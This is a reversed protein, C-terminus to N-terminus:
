KGLEGILNNLVEIVKADANVIGDALKQLEIGSAPSIERNLRAAERLFDPDKVTEDFAKRVADVRDAPVGPGFLLPHGIAAPASLLHLAAREQPNRALYTLMPPEQLDQPKSLGIQVLVNIKKEALWGPRERIAEWNASGRADVERRELALDIEAGGQYGAIVKFRTGVIRNLIAPYQASASTAGSAGITVDRKKADELSAIGSAAWAFLINTEQVPTGIWHFERMDAKLTPDKLAQQLPLGQHPALIVTGDRAAASAVFLTARVSGAGTMQKPIMTPNGPIYKPMFRALLRADVDYAAGQTLGILVEIQRGRYFDAVPDAQVDAAVLSSILGVSLFRARM